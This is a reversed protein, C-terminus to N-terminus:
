ASKIQLIVPRSSESVRAAIREGYARTAEFVEPESVGIDIKWAGNREDGLYVGWYLGKPLSPTGAITEERSHM